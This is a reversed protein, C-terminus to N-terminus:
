LKHRSFLYTKDKLIDKIHWRGDKFFTIKIATANEDAGNVIKGDYFDKKINDAFKDLEDNNPLSYVIGCYGFMIKYTGFGGGNEKPNHFYGCRDCFIYDEDSKYYYDSTAYKYDCKPCKVNSIVSGM